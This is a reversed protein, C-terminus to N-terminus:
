KWVAMTREDPEPEFEEAEELTNQKLIEVSHDLKLEQDHSNLSKFVDEADYASIQTIPQINNPRPAFPWTRLSTLWPIVTFCSEKLANIDINKQRDLALSLFTHKRKTCSIDTYDLFTTLPTIRPQSSYRARLQKSDM